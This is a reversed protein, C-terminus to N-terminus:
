NFNKKYIIGYQEPTIGVSNLVFTAYSLEEIEKETYEGFKGGNM